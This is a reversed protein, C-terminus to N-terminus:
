LITRFAMAMINRSSLKRDRQKEDGEYNEVYGDEDKALTKLGYKNLLKKEVIDLINKIIEKKQIVPYTLSIAFLQNPRVKESTETDKLGKKGNLFTKEFSEKVLNSINNLEKAYEKEGNEIAYEELIRIANYWMSNIEVAKGSRPTVPIGEVKADMWTLQVNRNGASILYDDDMYINSNEIDIKRSYSTYIGKLFKYITERFYKKEEKDVNKLKFYESIINNLVGNANLEKEKRINSNRNRENKRVMYKMYNYVVEFFLLSSDASNFLPKLTYEDFTNPIYTIDEEIGMQKLYMKSKNTKDVINEIVKKADEYRKTKLLLGEFSIMTDRMWDLFWPYGAIINKYKGDTIVFQDASMTMNKKFSELRLVHEKGLIYEEKEFKYKFENERELNQIRQIEKDYINKVHKDEIELSAYVYIKKTVNEPVEIEFIGPIYINETYDFGREKERIYEMGVFENNEFSKYKSDSVFFYMDNIDTDKGLYTYKIKKGFRNLLTNKSVEIQKFKDYERVSNKNNAFNNLGHFNRNNVLPTLRLVAKKSSTTVTYIICVTNKGTQMFVEKELYIDEEGGKKDEPTIKFVAKPFFDKEFMEIKDYGSSIYEKSMNTYVPYERSDVVVAEDIKSLFVRRVGNKKTPATLLGHYRRTNAFCVTSSAFGGIGNTVIWEKDLCERLSLNLKYIKM